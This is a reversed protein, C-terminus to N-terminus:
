LHQRMGQQMTEVRVLQGVATARQLSLAAIMDGSRARIARGNEDSTLAEHVDFPEGVEVYCHSNPGYVTVQEGAFVVESGSVGAYPEHPGSAQRICAVGQGFTTFRYPEITGESLYTYLTRESAFHQPTRGRALREERIGDMKGQEYALRAVESESIFDRFISRLRQAEELAVPLFDYYTHGEDGPQKPEPKLRIYSMELNYIVPTEAGNPVPDFTPHALRFLFARRSWDYSVNVVECDSPVNQFVPVAIFQASHTTLMIDAMVTEAVIYARWRRDKSADTM